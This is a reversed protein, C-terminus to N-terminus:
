SSYRGVCSLAGITASNVRCWQVLLDGCSSETWEFVDVSILVSTVVRM